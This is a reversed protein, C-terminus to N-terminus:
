LNFTKAELATKLQAWDTIGSLRCYTRINLIITSIVEEMDGANAKLESKTLLVQRTEANHTIELKIHETCEPTCFGIIKVTAM